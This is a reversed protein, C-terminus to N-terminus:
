ERIWTRSMKVPLMQALPKWWGYEAAHGKKVLSHAVLEEGSDSSGAPEECWHVQRSVKRSAKASKWCTAALHGKKKCVKCYASHKRFCEYGAHGSAGCVRCKFEKRAPGKSPKRKQEITQARRISQRNRIRVQAVGAAQPGEKLHPANEGVREFAEAQELAEKSTLEEKELLRKRTEVSLLGGIFVMTVVADRYNKIEEFSCSNAAKQLEAYYEHLAQGPKQVKSMLGFREALILKKPQYHREMAQRLDKLEVDELERGQLLSELLEYNSNGVEQLFILRQDKEETVKRLVLFNNFLKWWTRWSTGPVYPGPSRGRYIEVGPDVAMPKGTNGAEGESKM